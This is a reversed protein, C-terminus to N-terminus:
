KKSFIGAIFIACFNEAKKLGKKYAFLFNLHFTKRFVKRGM